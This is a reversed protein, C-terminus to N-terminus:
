PLVLHDRKSNGRLADELDAFFADVGAGGHFTDRDDPETVIGELMQEIREDLSGNSNWEALHGWLEDHDAASISAGFLADGGRGAHLTDAGPGGLLINRGVGGKLQDNGGGGLLFAPGGAVFLHDDGDGGEALLPHTVNAATTLKDNGGCLSVVIQDFLSTSYTRHPGEPYFDAHVRIANQGAGNLHVQDSMPTGIVYLVGDVIGSGSIVSTTTSAASDGGDDLLTITVSYIGGSHYSHTGLLTASGNAQTITAPSSSGDGWDIVATHTDATGMDSFAAQVTVLQNEQTDGCDAASSWVDTIMPAVNNVMVSLTSSAMDGDDDAITVTVSYPALTIGNWNDDVYQHSLGSFSLVGADLHAITDATGDGWDVRVTHHDLIGPDKFSGALITSGNEDIEIASLTLDIDAPAVNTVRYDFSTAATEGFADTATITVSTANAPGEIAPATWTWTGFENDQSVTGLSATLTATSNGQLDFFTGSNTVPTGEPATVSAANADIVPPTNLHVTVDFTDVTTGSDDDSLTIIATFTGETTYTHQLSFTKDTSNVDLPQSGGGDGFDVTGSWTDLTGPDSFTIDSRSFYGAASSNLTQDEVAAFSPAVNHVTVAFSVPSPEILLDPEGPLDIAPWQNGSPIASDGDDDAFSVITIDYIDVPTGSPDDDLYRHSVSFNTSGAAIDISELPTGDGWDLVMTFADLKGPDQITGSLTALGDEQILSTVALDELQPAVNHVIVSTSGDDFLQGDSVTVVIPSAPLSLNNLYTHSANFERDGEIVTLVTPDSGDGWDISISHTDGNDQDVFTGHLTTSDGEDIISASLSLGGAIISPPENVDLLSITFAQELWLGGQDSTRVRVSYESQSEYDLDTAIKLQNGDISFSDNDTAGSGPVLAYTFATELDPDAANLTGIITGAAANESVSNASLILATPQENLNSVNIIFVREVFQNASDTSRIRVSYSGQTEFDPVDTLELRDGDISFSGNDDSGAGPVLTYTFADGADPDTTAFTGVKTGAAAGEAISTPTIALQSPPDQVPNVTLSVTATSFGGKTDTVRYVFSDPGAYNSVPIYVRNAGIGTLVGHAPQADIAFAFTDGDLDSGALTINASTDESLSVSQPTATPFNNVTLTTLVVDNNDTGGQYDIQFINGGYEVLGGQPLGNFAGSTTAPSVNEIIVFTDGVAAFSSLLTVELDGALQVSGNIVLRDYGSGPTNGNLDIELDSSTPARFLTNGNLTLIGTSGVSGPNINGYLDASGSTWNITGSGSLRDYSGTGVYPGYDTTLSGNVEVTSGIVQMRYAATSAKLEVTSNGSGNAFVNGTARATVDGEIKLRHNTSQPRLYIHQGGVIDGSWTSTQNFGTGYLNVPIGTTSALQEDLISVGNELQVRGNSGTIITGTAASNDGDGLAKDHRLVVLSNTGVQTQGAYTNEGALAVAGAGATILGGSGSIAGSVVLTGSAAQLVLDLGNNDIDGSTIFTGSESNFGGTSSLQVPIAFSHFGASKVSGSLALANGSFSYNNGAVLISGFSTGAAFDNFNAKQDASAPFILNAAAAPVVDGVWNAATSWRNDSGGGDWEGALVRTLVVDNHDTGAQYTISFVASGVSFLDGENLGNFTGTTAETSVNEVIMFETGVAPSFGLTVKLDGALTLMGDVVLRDYESGVATGHLDVELDSTSPGRFITDGGLTLVGTTGVSGPNISGYIDATGNTWDITGTGTLRDYFGGSVHPGWNMLSSGNIDATGSVQLRNATLSGNLIVKATNYNQVVVSYSSTTTALDGDIKLRHAASLPRLYIHSAVGSIIDGTWTTTQSPGSGALNLVVSAASTLREDTVTVGNELQVRGNSHTMITGTAATNDAAGLANDHRIALVNSGVRTEGTYLNDAELAVTGSGATIVNGSGSIVGSIVVAGSTSELTLDNGATEIASQVTFTGTSSVFGGAEALEISIAFLNNSGRNAVLGALSMPSGSLSYGNGAILLSGFTAGVFDNVSTKQAANSPFILNANASPAVDDAWNAATTWRNDAGGGDWESAAVRTLVVDNGGAGGQYTISFVYGDVALLGGENLGNFNGTTDEASTNEIVTFSSGVPPSFGLSAEIDGAIQLSGNVVLCDYDSGRSTGNLQIEFDTTAPERFVTDGELTLIGPSGTAGPAINGYIDATSSTWEIRGDGTLREYFGSGVYPGSSTTVVGNVEVTHGIVQLRNATLAGNIETVSTGSGQVSVNYGSTAVAIDGNLKLRHNGNARLIVSSNAGSVIDGTWTNTVNSGASNLNLNISTASTLREDEITVGSELQVEGNPDAIITGTASTNDAAGLANDHRVSLTNAGVRTQGAYTNNGALAVTGNGSTVVDGGGSIVGSVILTGNSAELGLSNGNTDITASITFTGATSTFGGGAALQTPIAFANGAGTSTVTGSLSIQNGTPAYGAGGLLISGFNTAAAFDNVNAKNVAGVPFVLDDGALPAIDGAWNKATSWNADAGGGDWVMTALVRRPEYAQFM